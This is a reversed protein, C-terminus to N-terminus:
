CDPDFDLWEDMETPQHDDYAEDLLFYVGILDGTDECVQGSLYHHGEECEVYFDNFPADYHVEHIGEMMCEFGDDVYVKVGEYLDQLSIRLLDKDVSKM